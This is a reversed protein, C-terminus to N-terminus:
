PAIYPAIDFSTMTISSAGATASASGQAATVQAYAYTNSFVYATYDVLYGSVESTIPFLTAAFGPFVQEGGEPFPIGEGLRAGNFQPIYGIGSIGGQVHVVSEANGVGQASLSARSEGLTAHTRLTLTITTPEDNEPDDTVWFWERQSTVATPDESPNNQGQANQTATQTTSSATKLPEFILGQVYEGAQAKYCLACAAVCLMLILKKM